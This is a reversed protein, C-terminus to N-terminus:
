TSKRKKHTKNIEGKKENNIYGNGQTNELKAYCGYEVLWLWMRDDMSRDMFVTKLPFVPAECIDPSM